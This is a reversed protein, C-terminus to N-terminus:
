NKVPVKEKGTKVSELEEISFVRDFNLIIV